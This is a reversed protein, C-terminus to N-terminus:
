SQQLCCIVDLIKDVRPTVTVSYEHTCIFSATSLITDLLSVLAVVRRGGLDWHRDNGPMCMYIKVMKVECGWRLRESLLCSQRDRSHVIMDFLIEM